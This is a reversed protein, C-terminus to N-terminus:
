NRIPGPNRVFIYSIPILTDSISNQVIYTTASRHIKPQMNRSMCAFFRNESVSTDHRRM